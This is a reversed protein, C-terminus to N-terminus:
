RWDDCQCIPNTRNAVYEEQCWQWVEGCLGYIGWPSPKLLREARDQIWDNGWPYIRGDWGRAAREFENELPLRYSLSSASLLSPLLFPTLFSPLSSQLFDQPSSLVLRFGLILNRFGPEIWYRSSARCYWATNLWSGGRYARAKTDNSILLGLTDQIDNWSISVIAQGNEVEHGGIGDSQHYQSPTALNQQIHFAPIFLNRQPKEDDHHTNSGVISSGAPVYCMRGWIPDDYALGYDPNSCLDRTITENPINNSRPYVLNAVPHGIEAQLRVLHPNIDGSRIFDVLTSAQTQQNDNEQHSARERKRRQIDM